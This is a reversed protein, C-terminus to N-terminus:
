VHLIINNVYIMQIMHQHHKMVYDLLVIVMLIQKVHDMLLHQLHEVYIIMERLIMVNLLIILVNHVM